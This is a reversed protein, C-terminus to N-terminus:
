TVTKPPNVWSIIFWIKYLPSVGFSDFKGKRLKNFIM